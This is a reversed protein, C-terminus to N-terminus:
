KRIWGASRRSRSLPSAMRAPRKDVKVMAVRGDDDFMFDVVSGPKLRLRKLVRQPVAVQGRSTVIESM